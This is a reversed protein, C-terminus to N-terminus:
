EQEQLAVSVTLLGCSTEIPVILHSVGKHAYIEAQDGVLFTPPTIDCVYGADNLKGAANGTIMNALENITSRVISDLGSLEEGNMVSAIKIATKRDMDYIVHGRLRGSLGVITAVGRSIHPDKSLGLKGRVLGEEGISMGLVHFAALTFPNIFDAKM